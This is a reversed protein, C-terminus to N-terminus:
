SVLRLVSKPLPGPDPDDLILRDPLGGIIEELMDAAAYHPRPADSGIVLWIVGSEDVASAIELGPIDAKIARVTTM